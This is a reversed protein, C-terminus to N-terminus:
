SERKDYCAQVQLRKLLEALQANDKLPQAKLTM